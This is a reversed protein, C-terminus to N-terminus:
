PRMVVLIFEVCKKKNLGQRGMDCGLPSENESFFMGRMHLNSTTQTAHVSLVLSGIDGLLTEYHIHTTYTKLSPIHITRDYNSDTVWSHITGVPLTLWVQINVKFVMSFWQLCFRCGEMNAEEYPLVMNVPYEKWSGVASMNEM